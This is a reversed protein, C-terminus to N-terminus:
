SEGTLRGAVALARVHTGSGRALRGALVAGATALAAWAAGDHFPELATYGAWGMGIVVLPVVIVPRARLGWEPLLVAGLVATWVALGVLVAGLLAPETHVALAGFSAVLWAALGCAAAGSALGFRRRALAAQSLTTAVAALPTALLALGLLSGAPAFRPGFLWRVLIPSLGAGGLAIVGGGTSAGQLLSELLRTHEGPARRADSLVPLTAQGILAPWASVLRVVQLALALQGMREPTGEFAEFLLLPGSLIWTSASSAAFAGAGSRTLRAADPWALSVEVPFLRSQVLWLGAVGQALWVIAHVVMLGLPTGDTLLVGLAVAVEIPRFTIEQRLVLESRECAVMVHEAWTAIARGALAVLAVLLLQRRGPDDQTTALFSLLIGCIILSATRLGLAQAAAREGEARSRGMAGAVVERTGLAVFPLLVLYSAQAFALSGYAATDLSRALLLVYVGRMAQACLRGGLLHRANDFARRALTTV